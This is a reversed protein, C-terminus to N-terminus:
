AFNFANKYYNLINKIIHDEDEDGDDVNKNEELTSTAEFRTFDMPTIIGIPKLVSEDDMSENKDKGQSPEALVVLLHRVNNKLMLDAADTPSSDANIPILPSSM